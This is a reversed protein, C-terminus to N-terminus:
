FAIGVDILRLTPITSSVGALDGGFLRMAGIGLAISVNPKAGLLRSYGIDPGAGLFTGSGFDNGIRHVGLRGGIYFGSMAARPYYRLTGTLNRYSADSFSLYSGSVGWTKTADIALTASRLCVTRSFGSM